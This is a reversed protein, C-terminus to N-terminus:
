QGEPCSIDLSVARDGVPLIRDMSYTARTVRSSTAWYRAKVMSTPAARALLPMSAGRYGSVLVELARVPDLHIGQLLQYQGQGGQPQAPM